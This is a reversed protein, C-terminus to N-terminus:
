EYMGSLNREFKRLLTFDATTCHRVLDRRCHPVFHGMVVTASKCALSHSARNTASHARVTPLQVIMNYAWQLLKLLHSYPLIRNTKSPTGVKQANSPECVTVTCSACAAGACRACDPTGEIIDWRMGVARATLRASVCGGASVGGASVCGGASVGGASVGGASSCLHLLHECAYLAHVWVLL